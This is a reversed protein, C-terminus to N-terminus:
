LFSVTRVRVSCACPTPSGSALKTSFCWSDHVALTVDPQWTLASPSTAGGQGRQREDARRQGESCSMDESGASPLRDVLQQVDQWADALTDGGALHCLVCPTSSTRETAANGSSPM